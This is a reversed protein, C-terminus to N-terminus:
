RLVLAQERETLLPRGRARQVSLTQPLLDSRSRNEGNHFADLQRGQAPLPRIFM